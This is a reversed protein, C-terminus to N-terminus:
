RFMVRPGRPNYCVTNRSDMYCKHTWTVSVEIRHAIAKRRALIDALSYMGLTTRLTTEALTHTALHGDAM